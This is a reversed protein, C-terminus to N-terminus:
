CSNSETCVLWAFVEIKLVSRRLLCSVRFFVEFVNWKRGGRDRAGPSLGCCSHSVYFNCFCEKKSRGIERVMVGDVGLIFVCRM